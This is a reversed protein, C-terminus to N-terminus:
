KLEISYLFYIIFRENFPIVYGNEQKPNLYEISTQCTVGAGRGAMDNMCIIYQKAIELYLKKSPIKSGNEILAVYM